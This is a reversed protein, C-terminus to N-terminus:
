ELEPVVRPLQSTLYVTALPPKQGVDWPFRQDWHILGADRLHLWGERDPPWVERTMPNPGRRKSLVTSGHPPTAHQSHALWFMTAQALQTEQM